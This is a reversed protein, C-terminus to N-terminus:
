IDAFTDRFKELFNNLFNKWTKKKEFNLNRRCKRLKELM